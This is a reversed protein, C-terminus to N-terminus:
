HRSFPQGHQLNIPNTYQTFTSLIINSFYLYCSTLSASWVTSFIGVRRMLGFAVEAPAPLASCPGRRGLNLSVAVEARCDSSRRPSTVEKNDM